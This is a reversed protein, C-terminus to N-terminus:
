KFSDVIALLEKNYVDYNLEASTFKRSYFALPRIVGKNDKQRITSGLAWDLANTEIILQKIPDLM